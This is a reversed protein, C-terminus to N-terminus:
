MKAVMQLLVSSVIQQLYQLVKRNVDAAVHLLNLPLGHDSM